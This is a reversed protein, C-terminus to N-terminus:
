AGTTWGLIFEPFSDTALASNPIRNYRRAQPEFMDACLASVVRGTQPQEEDAKMQNRRSLDAKPTAAKPLFGGDSNGCLKRREASVGSRLIAALM